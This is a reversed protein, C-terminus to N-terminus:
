ILNKNRIMLKQILDKDHQVCVVESVAIWSLVLLSLPSLLRTTCSLNSEFDLKVHSVNNDPTRMFLKNFEAATVSRQRWQHRKM